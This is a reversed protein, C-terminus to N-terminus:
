TLAVAEINAGLAALDSLYQWDEVERGCESTSTHLTYEIIGMLFQQVTEAAEQDDMYAGVDVGRDENVAALILQITRAYESGYGEWEGELLRLAAPVLEPRVTMSAADLIADHPMNEAHM